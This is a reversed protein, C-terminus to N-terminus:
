VRVKQASWSWMTYEKCNHIIEDAEATTISRKSPFYKLSTLKTKYCATRM